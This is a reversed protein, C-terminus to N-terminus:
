HWWFYRLLNSKGNYKAYISHASNQSFNYYAYGYQTKTTLNVYLNKGEGVICARNIPSTISVSSFRNYIERSKTNGFGASISGTSISNDYVIQGAFHAEKIENGEGADLVFMELTSDYDLESLTVSQWVEGGGGTPINQIASVFETPFELPASTGGKARIADAVSTLDAETALYIDAM